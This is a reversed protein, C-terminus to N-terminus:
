DLELKFNNFSYSNLKSSVKISGSFSNPNDFEFLKHINELLYQNLTQLDSETICYKAALDKYQKNNRVRSDVSLTKLAIEALKYSDYSYQFISANMESINTSIINNIEKNDRFKKNTEGNKNHNNNRIKITKEM